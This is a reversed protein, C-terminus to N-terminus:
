SSADSSQTGVMSRRLFTRCYTPSVAPVTRVLATPITKSLCVIMASQSAFRIAVRHSAGFGISVIASAPLNIPTLGFVKDLMIDLSLDSSPRGGSKTQLALPLIPVRIM